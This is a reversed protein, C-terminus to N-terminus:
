LLRLERVGWCGGFGRIRLVELRLVGLLGVGGLGGLVRLVGLVDRLVRPLSIMSYFLVDIIVRLNLWDAM